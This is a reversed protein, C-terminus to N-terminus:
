PMKFDAAPSTRRIAPRALVDQFTARAVEVANGAMVALGSKAGPQGRGVNKNAQQRQRRFRAAKEVVVKEGCQREAMDSALRLEILGCQQFREVVPM